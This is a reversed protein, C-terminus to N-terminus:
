APWVRRHPILGGYWILGPNQTRIETKSVELASLPTPAGPGTLGGDDYEGQTETDATM